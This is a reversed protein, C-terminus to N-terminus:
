GWGEMEDPVTKKSTDSFEAGETSDCDPGQHVETLQCNAGTKKPPRKLHFAIVCVVSLQLFGFGVLYYLFSLNTAAASKVRSDKKEFM